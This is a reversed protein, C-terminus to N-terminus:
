LGEDVPWEPAAWARTVYVGLHASEGRGASPVTWRLLAFGEWPHKEQGKRGARM